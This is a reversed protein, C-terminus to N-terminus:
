IKHSFEQNRQTSKMTLLAMCMFGYIMRLPLLPFWFMEFHFLKLWSTSDSSIYVIVFSKWLILSLCMYQYFRHTYSMQASINLTEYIVKSLETHSKKCHSLPAITRLVEISLGDNKGIYNYIHFIYQQKHSDM